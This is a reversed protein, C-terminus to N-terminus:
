PRSSARPASFTWCGELFHVRRHARFLRDSEFGYAAPVGHPPVVTTSSPARTGQRRTSVRGKTGRQPKQRDRRHEYAAGAGRPNEHTESMAVHRAEPFMLPILIATM